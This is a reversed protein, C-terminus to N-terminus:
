LSKKREKEPAVTTETRTAGITRAITGDSELQVKEWSITKFDIKKKGQIIRKTRGDANVPKPLLIQNM